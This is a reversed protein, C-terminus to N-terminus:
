LSLEPHLRDMTWVQKGRAALATLALAGVTFATLVACGQWVPTLDGGTILRRLSEVVYSMPLYPHIANFFGPSTQVPYTGGASTLQLMLVALVLIRGAAGFKANLWQVIAAFCGTVLMLFGITLAPRAMELGLGWHLVSMLAGVQLIGLGAVPLWGAFAIRWPSAGAALARRNLPAILMYAVMAGVWLSLPIFYPAFGTGYNPAKHLSQNALQVPDAMVQTRAERQQQDYDPIKGVGDHLGDALDRNGDVLKYMGGDLRHAGDGLKGVGDGLAASGSSASGIGAHLQVMGTAVKHAGTNLANAQTVASELDGSLGPAMAALKRADKELEALQEKLKALDGGSDKVLSEVDGSLEAAEATGDKVRKLDPCTAPLPKTAPTVCTRTYVDAALAAAQKGVRAAAPAKKAFTDLHNNVVKATDAVLEASDAIQKPNEVLPKAKAAARNVVDAVIQTGNAVNRTGSELQGAASNLKKLGGTLEGNKEEATDLGDALAEAGQQAEGAGDKLKDAGDAAEATKDHLDSFSVFIKDLFGRSANTSAASRVESFVTRSISGVIYNNADNTRVQLAGTAPDAGSSSAIKASFDAPMTLSLYYTGDELGKAAEEASVERWDFTKSAHLKRTIEDGADIKKGDVTAGQDSNVLAVPVKDLRSYPDWFSWLYLAGYLLPLLLLAVLAARPLKGRGFRKLELAALKPSRM